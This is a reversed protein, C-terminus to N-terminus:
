VITSVDSVCIGQSAVCSEGIGPPQPLKGVVDDLNAPDALEEERDDHSSTDSTDTM